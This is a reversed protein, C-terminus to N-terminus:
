EDSGEDFAEPAVLEEPPIDCFDAWMLLDRLIEKDLQYQAYEGITMDDDVDDALGMWPPEDDSM